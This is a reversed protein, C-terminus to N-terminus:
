SSEQNLVQTGTYFNNGWNNHKTRARGDLTMYVSLAATGVTSEHQLSIITGAPLYDMVEITSEGSASNTLSDDVTELDYPFAGPSNPALRVGTLLLDGVVSGSEVVPNGQSLNTQTGPKVIDVIVFGALATTGSLTWDFELKDVFMDFPIVIHQDMQDDAPDGMFWSMDVEANFDPIFDWTVISAQNTGVIDRYGVMMHEGKKYFWKKSGSHNTIVGTNDMEHAGRTIMVKDSIGIWDVEGEADPFDLGEGFKGVLFINQESSAGTNDLLVRVNGVRGNCPMRIMLMPTLDNTRYLLVNRTVSQNSKKSYPYTSSKCAITLEAMTKVVISGITIAVTGTYYSAIDLTEGALVPWNVKEEIIITGRTDGGPNWMFYTPLDVGWMHAVTDVTKFVHALMTFHGNAEGDLETKSITHHSIAGFVASNLADLDLVYYVRTIWGDAPIVTEITHVVEEESNILIDHAVVIAKQGSSHGM